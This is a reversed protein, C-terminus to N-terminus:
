EAIKGNMWDEHTVFNDWSFIFREFKIIWNIWRRKDSEKYLCGIRIIQDITSENEGIRDIRQLFDVPCDIQSVIGKVKEEFFEESIINVLDLQSKGTIILGLGNEKYDTLKTWDFEITLNDGIKSKTLISSDHLVLRSIDETIKYTM